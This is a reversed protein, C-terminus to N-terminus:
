HEFDTLSYLSPEGVKKTLCSGFFLKRASEIKEEFGALGLNNITQVRQNRIKIVERVSEAIEKRAHGSYILIEERM